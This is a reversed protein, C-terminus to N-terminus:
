TNKARFPYWGNEQAFFAYFILGLILLFIIFIIVWSAIGSASNVFFIAIVGLVLLIIIVVANLSNEEKAASSQAIISEIKSQIDTQTVNQQTCQSYVTTGGSIKIYKATIESNNCTIGVSTTASGTCTQTYINTIETAIADAQQSISSAVGLSPLGLSQTVATAQQQISSKIAAQMSQKTTNSQMCTLSLESQGTVDIEEANIVCGTATIGTQSTISATCGLAYSDAISTAVSTIKKAVNSSISVGM